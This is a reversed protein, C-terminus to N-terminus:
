TLIPDNPAVAYKRFINSKGCNNALELSLKIIPKSPRNIYFVTLSKSSKLPVLVKSWDIGNQCDYWHREPTIIKGFYIELISSRCKKIWGGWSSKWKCSFILTRSDQTQFFDGKNFNFVSLFYDADVFIKCFMGTALTLSHFSVWNVPSLRVFIRFETTKISCSETKRNHVVRLLWLLEVTRTFRYIFM